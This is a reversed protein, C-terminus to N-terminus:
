VKDGIYVCFRPGQAILDKRIIPFLLPDIADVEQV